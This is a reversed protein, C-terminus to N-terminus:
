SKQFKKSLEFSLGNAAIIVASEFKQLPAYSEERFCHEVLCADIAVFCQARHMDEGSNFQHEAAFGNDLQRPM